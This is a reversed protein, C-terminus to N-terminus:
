SGVVKATFLLNVGHKKGGYCREANLMKLNSAMMENELDPKSTFRFFNGDSLQNIFGDIIGVAILRPRLLQIFSSHQLHYRVLWKSGGRDSNSIIAVGNVKLKNSLLKWFKERDNITYLVNCMVVVDLSKDPISELFSIANNNVFTIISDSKLKKLKKRSRKLMQLNPEVEFLEITNNRGLIEYSLNGTGSGIDAIKSGIISYKEVRNNIIELLEQYPYFYLLADYCYSYTTWLVQKLKDINTIRITQITCALIVLALVLASLLGSDGSVGWLVSLYPLVIVVEYTVFLFLIKSLKLPKNKVAIAIKIALYWAPIFTLVWLVVFVVAAVTLNM